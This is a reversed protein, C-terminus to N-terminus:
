EGAFFDKISSVVYEIQEPSMEPYMPLSLIQGQYGGAVPFDEPKYGLYDYAKLFPLAVPYHVGTGIGREKLHQQLADRDNTRIVYLHFVHKGNPRISPTEIGDVDALLENDSEKVEEALKAKLDDIFPAMAPDNYLKYYNTKKFQETLETFNGIDVIVLTEPPLLRATRPLDAARACLCPCLLILACSSLRVLAARRGSSQQTAKSTNEM